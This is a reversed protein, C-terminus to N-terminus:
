LVMVLSSVCFALILITISAAMHVNKDGGRSLHALILFLGIFVAYTILGRNYLSADMLGFFGRPLGIAGMLELQLRLMFVCALVFGSTLLWKGREVAAM